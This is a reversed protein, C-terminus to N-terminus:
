TNRHLSQCYLEWAYTVIVSEVTRGLVNVADRISLLHSKYHQEDPMGTGEEPVANAPIKGVYWHVIYEGGTDGPRHPRPNWSKLTVYIAETHPKPGATRQDPPIPAHTPANLPFFEVRYGSEEYAERLAAQELSEGVDKRGKPLFWTNTRSDHIVVVRHTAPQFVVMGAGLMFNMSGWAGDAVFPTSWPSPNAPASAPTQANDQSPRRSGIMSFLRFPM